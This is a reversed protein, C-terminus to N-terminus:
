LAPPMRLLVHLIWSWGQTTFIKQWPFSPPFTTFFFFRVTTRSCIRYFDYAIFPFSAQSAEVLIYPTLEEIVTQRLSQICSYYDYLEIYEAHHCEPNFSKRSIGRYVGNRREENFSCKFNSIIETEFTSSSLVEAGSLIAFCFRNELKINALKKWPKNKQMNSDAFMLCCDIWCYYGWRSDSSSCLLWLDPFLAWKKGRRNRQCRHLLSQIPSDVNSRPESGPLAGSGVALTWEFLFYIAFVNM